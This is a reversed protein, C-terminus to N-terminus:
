SAVSEATRRIEAQPEIEPATSTTEQLMALRKDVDVIELTLHQAYKQLFQVDGAPDYRGFPPRFPTAGMIFLGGPIWGIQQDGIRLFM